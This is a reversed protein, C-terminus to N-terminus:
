QLVNEYLGPSAPKGLGSSMEVNPTEGEKAIRTLKEKKKKYNLPLVVDQDDVIGKEARERLIM